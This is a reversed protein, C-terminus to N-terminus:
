MMWCFIYNSFYKQAYAVTCFIEKHKLSSSISNGDPIPYTAAIFVNWPCKRKGNKGGQAPSPFHKLKPKSQKPQPTSSCSTPSPSLKTLPLQTIILRITM